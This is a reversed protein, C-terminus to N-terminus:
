HATAADFNTSLLRKLYRKSTNEFCGYASSRYSYPWVQTTSAATVSHTRWSNSIRATLSSQDWLHILWPPNWHSAQRQLRPLDTLMVRLTSQLGLCLRLKCSGSRVKIEKIRESLGLGWSLHRPKLPHKSAFNFSFCFRFERTVKNWVFTPVVM